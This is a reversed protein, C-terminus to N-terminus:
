YQGVVEGGQMSGLARWTNLDISDSVFRVSADCLSTMVGTPHRSRAAVCELNGGSVGTCPPNAPIASNCYGAGQLVDPSWSNPALFTEFHAGGGWWAFGRLDNGQGQVTEGFLLTNSLGDLVEQFRVVQRLRENAPMSAVWPDGGYLALFPGGGYTVGQYPNVRTLVTNGHNGLYNHFTIGSYIAANASVTDSPCTYVPIQTRTVPLNQADGYRIPGGMDGPRLYMEHLSSQEVFPLLSVLWTGWCCDYEGAPFAKYVSAYNQVGLGLQKLNNSCQSRRSAERAAQVAPLLLAVLIGIIAIVVLLEVLTFGNRESRM